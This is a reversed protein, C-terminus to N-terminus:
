VLRSPWICAQRNKCQLGFLLWCDYQLLGSKNYTELLHSCWLVSGFAGSLIVLAVAYNVCKASVRDQTETGLSLYTNGAILSLGSM